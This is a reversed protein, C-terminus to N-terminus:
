AITVKVSYFESAAGKIEAYKASRAAANEQSLKEYAAVAVAENQETEALLTTFDEAVMELISIISSGADSRPSAFTMPASVRRSHQSVQVLATGQYYSRLVGIARSVADVSDRYDKSSKDYQAKEEQRVKTAETQARDIQM